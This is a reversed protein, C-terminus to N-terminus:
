KVCWIRNIRTIGEYCDMQGSWSGQLLEQWYWSCSDITWETAYIYNKQRCIQHATVTTARCQQSNCENGVTWSDVINQFGGGFGQWGTGNFYYHRDNNDSYALEGEKGATWSTPNDPLPRFIVSDEVWLEGTDLADVSNVGFPGNTVIDGVAFGHRAELDDYVGYPSPYYTTITIEESTQPYVDSILSLCATVLLIIALTYNRM